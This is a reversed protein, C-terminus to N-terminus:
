CSRMRAVEVVAVEVAPLTVGTEENVASPERVGHEVVPSSPPARGDAVAAVSALVGAGGVADGIGTRGRSLLAAVVVAPVVARAENAVLLM